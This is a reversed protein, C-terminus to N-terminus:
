GDNDNGWVRREGTPTFYEVVKGLRKAEGMVHKTGRSTGDWFAVMRDCAEAIRENRAFAREGFEARGGPFPPLDDTKVPFLMLPLGCKKAEQEAWTDVGSGCGSIITTEMPLLQIYQRILNPAKFGRSGVIAVKM